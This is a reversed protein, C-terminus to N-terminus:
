EEYTNNDIGTLPGVDNGEANIQGSNSCDDFNIISGAGVYGALGGVRNCATIDGENDCEDMTSANTLAGVIGGHETTKDTVENLTGVDGYNDCNTLYTKNTMGAIGGGYTDAKVQGNNTCNTLATGGSGAGLIGGARTKAEVLGNNVSGSTTGSRQQGVIGGATSTTAYVHGYNTCDTIKQTTDGAIGGAYYVGEIYGYNTCSTINANTGYSTGAIGGVGYKDKTGGSGTVTGYNTCNKVTGANNIGVIGGTADYGNVTGYNTCNEVTSANNGVIGGIAYCTTVNANITGYNTCNKVTAKSLSGSIGGVRYTSTATLTINGYYACNDIAVSTEATGTIGGILGSKEACTIDVYSVVNTIKCSAQQAYYTLGGARNKVNLNGELVLNSVAGKLAGFLGIAYKTNDTWTLGGITYGNGDLNGLFYNYKTTVGGNYCIPQFVGASLDISTTLEYYTELTSYSANAAGTSVSVVSLYALDTASQILYPDEQTGTGSLQYNATDPYTGDWVSAKTYTVTYNADETVSGVFYYKDPLYGSLAPTATQEEGYTSGYDLTIKKAKPAEVEGGTVVYTITVDYKNLTEIYYLVYTAKGIVVPLDDYGYITEGDFWGISYTYQKTAPPVPLEEGEYHVANGYTLEVSYLERDEQDVFSITYVNRTEKFVAYYTAKDTVAPLTIVEGNETLAWGLFEYEYETTNEKFPTGDFEPVQGYKVDEKTEKGDVIWTIEYENVTTFLNLKYTAEGTIAPLNEEFGYTAGECIWGIYEYSYQADNEKKPLQGEFKASSGYEVNQTFLVNGQEDTFVVKYSKVNEKFIAYYTQEGNVVLQEETLVEGNETLAWGLFEYSYQANGEKQPQGDFVVNEGYQLTKSTEEGEVNWTVQYSNLNNQFQAQYTVAKTVAPLEEGGYVNEGDSWGNFVYTYQVDATKTPAEGGYVPVEGYNVQSTQLTEEGNVFTVEYKNKIKNYTATFTQKGTATPLQALVTGDELAWGLFEYTYEADAQREPTEGTYVIEQGYAVSVTLIETGDYNCFTIDYSNNVSCGVLSIAMTIALIVVTVISLLKRKM